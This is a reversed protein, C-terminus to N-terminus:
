SLKELRFEKNLILKNLTIEILNNFYILSSKFCLVKYFNGCKKM